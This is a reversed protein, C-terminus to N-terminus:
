QLKISHTNEIETIIPLHNFSHLRLEFGPVVEINARKEGETFLMTAEIIKSASIGAQILLNYTGRITGGTTCVSDIIIIDKNKLRAVKNMGLFLQKKDTATVTDYQVCIPNVDDIQKNKYIILGDIQYKTRLVHAMAITSAEPTVFCPNKLGLAQIREAMLRAGEEVLDSHDNLKFYLFYGGGKPLKALPVQKAVSGLTLLGAIEESPKESFLTARNNM